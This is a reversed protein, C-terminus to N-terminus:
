QTFVKSSATPNTTPAPTTSAAATGSQAEATGTTAVVHTHAALWNKIATFNADAVDGKSVGSAAANAGLKIQTPTIVIEVTGDDKGLHLNADGGGDYDTDSESGPVAYAYLGADRKLNAQSLEGSVRFRSPDWKHFYVTVEDGKNLPGVLRYNGFKPWKIPVRPLPPIPNGVHVMPEVMALKTEDDYSVIRGPLSTMVKKTAAAAAATLLEADSVDRM